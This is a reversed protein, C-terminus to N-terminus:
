EEGLKRIAAAIAEGCMQTVQGAETNPAIPRAFEDAVKAAEELAAQRIAKDREITKGVHRAPVEIRHQAPVKINGGTEAM